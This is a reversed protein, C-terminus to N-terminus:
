DRSIGKIIDILGLWDLNSLNRFERKLVLPVEGEKLYVGPKPTSTPSLSRVPLVIPGSVSLTSM